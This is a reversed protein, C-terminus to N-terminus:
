DLGGLFRKGNSDLKLEISFEVRPDELFFNKPWEIFAVEFPSSLIEDLGMNQFENRDKVRYFDFHHFLKEQVLYEQHLSFTPSSVPSFNYFRLWTRVFETKGAGLDGSLLILSGSKTKEKVELVAKKLSELSTVDIM